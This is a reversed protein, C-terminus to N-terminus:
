EFPLEEDMDAFPDFEKGEGDFVIAKPYIAGDKVNLSLRVDAQYYNPEDAILDELSDYKQGGYSKAPLEFKTAVNVFGEFDTIWSPTFKKGSEKFADKLTKMQEDTLKVEALTIYLKEDSKQGKFEKVMRRAKILKGKVVMNAM